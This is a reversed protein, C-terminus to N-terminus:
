LNALLMDATHRAVVGTIHNEIDLVCRSLPKDNNFAQSQAIRKIVYDVTATWGGFTELVFPSFQFSPELGQLGQRYKRVKADEMAEASAYMAKCSGRM